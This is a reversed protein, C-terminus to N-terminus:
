LKRILCVRGEFEKGCLIGEYDRLDKLNKEKTIILEGGRFSDKEKICRRTYFVLASNEYRYFYVEERSDKLYSVAKPVFREEEFRLAYLYTGALLVVGISLASLLYRRSAVLSLM